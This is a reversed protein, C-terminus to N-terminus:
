SIHHKLYKSQLCHFDISNRLSDSSFESGYCSWTLLGWFM